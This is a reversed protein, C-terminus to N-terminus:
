IRVFRSGYFYILFNSGTFHLTVGWKLLYVDILFAVGDNIKQCYATLSVLKSVSIKPTKRIPNVGDIEDPSEFDALKSSKKRIRGSRSIDM